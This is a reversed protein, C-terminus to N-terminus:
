EGLGVLHSTGQASGCTLFPDLPPPSGRGPGPAILGCYGVADPLHELRERREAEALRMSGGEGQRGVLRGPELRVVRRGKEGPHQRVVRPHVGFSEDEIIGAREANRDKPEVDVGRGAGVPELAGVVATGTDPQGEGVHVADTRGLHGLDHGRLGVRAQGVEPLSGMGRPRDDLLQHQGATEVRDVVDVEAPRGPEVASRCPRHALHPATQAPAPLHGTAVQQQM